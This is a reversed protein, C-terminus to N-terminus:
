FYTVTLLPALSGRDVGTSDNIEVLIPIAQGLDEMIRLQFDLLGLRQAEIMLSTVEIAVNTGVSEFVVPAVQILLRAADIYLQNV